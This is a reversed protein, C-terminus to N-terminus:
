ICFYALGAPGEEEYQTKVLTHAASPYYHQSDDLAYSHCAGHSSSCTSPGRKAEKWIMGPRECARHKLHIVTSATPPAAFKLTKPKPLIGIYRVGNADSMRVDMMMGLAENTPCRLPMRTPKKTHGQMKCEGICAKCSAGAWTRPRSRMLPQDGLM